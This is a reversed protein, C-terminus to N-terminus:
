GVALLPNKFDNMFSGYGKKITPSTVKVLKLLVFQIRSEFIGLLDKAEKEMTEVSNADSVDDKCTLQEELNRLAATCEILHDLAVQLTKLKSATSTQGIFILYYAPSSVTSKIGDSKTM